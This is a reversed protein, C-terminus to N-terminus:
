NRAKKRKPLYRFFREKELYAVKKKPITIRIHAIIWALWLVTTVIVSLIVIKSSLYQLQQSRFFWYTPIIIVLFVIINILQNIPFDYVPIQSHKKLLIRRWIILGAITAVSIFIMLLAYSNRPAIYPDTWFYWSFIETIETIDFSQNSLFIRITEFRDTFFEVMNTGFPHISCGVGREEPAHEVM